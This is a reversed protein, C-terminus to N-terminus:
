KRARRMRVKSEAGREGHGAIVELKMGFALFQADANGHRLKIGGRDGIEFFGEVGGPLGADGADDEVEGGDLENVARADAREEAHLLTQRGVALGHGQPPDAWGDDAHELQQAELANEVEGSGSLGVDPAARLGAGDM